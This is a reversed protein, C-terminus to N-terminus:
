KSATREDLIKANFSEGTEKRTRKEVQCSIKLFKCGSNCHIDCCEWRLINDKQLIFKLLHMTLEGKSIALPCSLM